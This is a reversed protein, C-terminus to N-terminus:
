AAVKLNLIARAKDVALVATRALLFEEKFLRGAQTSFPYPCAENVTAYIRAAAIAQAKIRDISVVPETM